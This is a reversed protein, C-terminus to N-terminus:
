KKRTIKRELEKLEEESTGFHSLPKGSKSSNDRFYKLHYIAPNDSKVRSLWFKATNEHCKLRLDDLEKEDTQFHSLPLGAKLVTERFFILHYHAPNDGRLNSLWYSALDILKNFEENAVKLALEPNLEGKFSLSPRKGRSKRWRAHGVIHAVSGPRVGELCKRQTLVSM